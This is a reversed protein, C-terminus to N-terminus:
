STPLPTLLYLTCRRRLKADHMVQALDQLQMERWPSCIATSYVDLLLVLNFLATHGKKQLRNAMM